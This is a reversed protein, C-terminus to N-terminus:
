EKLARALLGAAVTTGAGIAMHKPRFRPMPTPYMLNRMDVILDRADSVLLPVQHGLYAGSLALVPLQQHLPADRWFFGKDGLNVSSSKLLGVAQAVKRTNM